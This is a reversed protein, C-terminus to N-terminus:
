PNRWAARISHILSRVSRETFHANSTASAPIAPIPIAAPNLVRLAWPSTVLLM